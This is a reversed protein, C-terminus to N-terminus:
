DCSIFHIVIRILWSTAIMGCWISYVPPKKLKHKAIKFYQKLCKVSFRNIFKSFIKIQQLRVLFMWVLCWVHLNHGFKPIPWVLLDFYFLGLTKYFICLMVIVFFSLQWFGPIDHLECSMPSGSHFDPLHVCKTKFFPEVQKGLLWRM